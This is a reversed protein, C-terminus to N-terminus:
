HGAELDDFNVIECENQKVSGKKLVTEDTLELCYGEEDQLAISYSYVPDEMTGINKSIVYSKENVWPNGYVSKQKEKDLELDLIRFPVSDGADVPFGQTITLRNRVEDIYSQASSIFSGTKSDVVYHLIQPVMVLLVILAVVLLLVLQALTLGKENTM